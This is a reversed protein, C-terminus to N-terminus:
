VSEGPQSVQAFVQEFRALAPDLAHNNWYYDRAARSASRWKTADTAFTTLAAALEAASNGQAGLGRASILGDPDVTTVVPLGFSWAEIFTNPFGEFKSTCCLLSAGCYMANMRDREVAGHVRVNPITRARALMADSYAEGEYPMGAVHFTMKPLLGAVDLLLELQKVPAIRGVWLVQCDDGGPERAGADGADPMPCPLPLVSADLKFNDRLMGRQRETQAIVRAAGRLGYLYLWREYFKGLEPLRADVDMDSAISYVFHRGRRRCWSLVQGTVYEACNHYVVEADARELARELSSWRPTFFRLGPLGADRRCTKLVRVGDIRVEAPQGEDWTILTVDHGRAALWRAMLTTQREVGGVHGSRGGTLAGYAFHAVIAIRLPRSAAGPAPHPQIVANM